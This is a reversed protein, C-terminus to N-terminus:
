RNSIEVSVRRNAERGAATANDAVPNQDGFGTATIRNGPIGMRILEGKIADAREQSLRMNATERGVNDTYANVAVNASPIPALAAAFEKLQAEGVPQLEMSGSRFHLELNGPLNPMTRAAEPVSRNATGTVPQPVEVVPKRAHRILWLTPILALLLVPIVWRPWSSGHAVTQTVVPSATVTERGIPGVLNAIRTPLAARIAPAEHQLLSGLGAMSMGRDKAWNGLFSAVMPGAMSLLSLTKGAPLGTEAGLAQTLQGESQGFVTSLMRKGASMLPSNPDTIASSLQTASAEGTGTPVLDLIRQLMGPIGCKTAIGALITGAATQMGHSISQDSEGLAGALEGVRRTDITNFLDTLLSM